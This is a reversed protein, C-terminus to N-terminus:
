SPATADAPRPGGHHVGRAPTPASPGHTRKADSEACSFPWCALLKGPGRVTAVTGRPGDSHSPARAPPRTKTGKTFHHHPRAEPGRASLATSAPCETRGPPSSDRASMDARLYPPCTHAHAQTSAHTCTGIHVRTHVHRGPRMHAHAQTSAHVHGDASCCAQRRPPSPVCLSM